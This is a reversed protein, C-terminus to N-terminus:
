SLEPQRSFRASTIPNADAVLDDFRYNAIKAIEILAFSKESTSSNDMRAWGSRLVRDYRETERACIVLPFGFHDRYAAALNVVNEHETEELHSLGKHDVAQLEGTEEDEAGLDPFARILDLQETDSGTLMAEQFASRLDHVDDFPRQDFARDLVWDVGQVVEGFTERFQEVSMENVEDLTIAGGGAVAPGKNGIHFFLLNLLIATIAGMTIGTSFPIQLILNPMAQDVGPLAPVDVPAGKEIVTTPASSQSFQVYLAVALSTAAIILNRHDTFDVSTLTQIGVIAVTAFMILAAGGLVPAPISEVVKALKPLLGLIIMIVGACAVVWRSKVGTLRVLGVNESFATYPFSNFSGGIITAVGDARVAAAVDDSKIRKGVIEGTAFISGTSEVAVVLLVVIMSVIAVIDWQPWGFAFPPTFGLWDAEGVSSFHADGCLWAVFTGVVLGLLIAITAMFGRFFRQMLVILLITGLAYCVWKWNGPDKLHQNPDTVADGAGVPILCVGIITILTGTVVPPLFRILKAFFPAMLFTFVGAAIVAGYVTQLGVRGGGHQNAIQIVPALTAFTIGQLLPLRVGIKWIGVSQLLSAIGCTFLDATILMTLAENDLGIARAILLPVLVAGAYFAVVHQAGLAVLRGPPPVQDVPHVRKRKAPVSAAPASDTSM